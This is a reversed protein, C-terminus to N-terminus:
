TGLVERTPSPFDPRRATVVLDHDRGWVEARGIDPCHLEMDSQRTADREIQERDIPGRRRRDGPATRPTAAAMASGLPTKM